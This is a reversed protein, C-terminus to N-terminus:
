QVPGSMFSIEVDCEESHNMVGCQIHSMRIINRCAKYCKSYVVTEVPIVM